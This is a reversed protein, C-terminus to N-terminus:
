TVAFGRHTVDELRACREPSHRLHSRVPLYPVPPRQPHTRDALVVHRVKM